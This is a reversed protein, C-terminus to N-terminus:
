IIREEDPISPPELEEDSPLSNESAHGLAAFMIAIAILVGALEISPSIVGEPLLSGSMGDLIVYVGVIAFVVLLVCRYILLIKKWKKKIRRLM